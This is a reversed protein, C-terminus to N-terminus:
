VPPKWVTTEMPFYNASKLTWIALISIDQLYIYSYKFYRIIAVIAWKPDPFFLM